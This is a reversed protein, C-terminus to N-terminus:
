GLAERYLNSVRNAYDHLRASKRDWSSLGGHWVWSLVYERRATHNTPLKADLWRLHAFAVDYAAHGRCRDFAAWRRHQRWVTESIQYRSREGRPGILEDRNGSEVQAIASLL